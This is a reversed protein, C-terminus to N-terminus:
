ASAAAVRRPRRRFTIGFAAVALLLGMLRTRSAGDFAGENGAVLGALQVSAHVPREDSYTTAYYAEAQELAREEPQTWAGTVTASYDETLAQNLAQLKLSGLTAALLGLAVVARPGWARAGDRVGAGIWVLALAASIALGIALIQDGAALTSAIEQPAVRGASATLEGNATAFYAGRALVGLIAPALVFAVPLLRSKM